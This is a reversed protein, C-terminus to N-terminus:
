VTLPAKKTIKTNNAMVYNEGFYLYTQNFVIGNSDYEPPFELTITSGQPIDYKPYLLFYYYVQSDWTM